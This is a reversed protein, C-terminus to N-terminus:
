MILLFWPFWMILLLWYFCSFIDYSKSWYFRFKGVM